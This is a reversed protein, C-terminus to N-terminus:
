YDLCEETKSFRLDALFQFAWGFQIFSSGQHKPRFYRDRCAMPFRFFFSKIFILSSFFVSKIPLPFSRLSFLQQLDGEMIGKHFCCAPCSGLAGFGPLLAKELHFPKRWICAAVFNNWLIWKSLLNCLMWGSNRELLLQSTWSNDPIFPSSHWKLALLLFPPPLCLCQYGSCICHLDSFYIRHVQLAEAAASSWGVHAFM